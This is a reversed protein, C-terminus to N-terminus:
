DPLLHQLPSWPELAKLVQEGWSRRRLRGDLIALRGCNRRLPAVASPLLSLAEPLLLDRFWDRRKAKLSEVRAAVLPSELSPIPLLGVILQEPLPVQDQHEIWWSWRCCLVGNSDPATTEHIVRSGFEAALESALQRRLQQDNLLVITLGQQGLILRRCQDLLHQGYVETNPMPQRPPAFLSIPEQLSPESLNAVVTAPFAVAQFQTSLFDNKGSGTLLVVPQDKLLGPLVELPELPMLQWSWTLMRHDLEAWSAWNLSDAEIFASWPPPLPAIMRLLDKLALIGNSPIRIHADERTAHSFLRFTLKKHLEILSSEASPHARRLRDWDQDTIVLSMSERLRESLREAEPIILQRSKLYGNKYAHILGTPNLLWLQGSPPPNIAEWCCLTFGKQKLRPLESNFLRRRQSDTLVLVAGSEDLCLPVLLGLWFKDQSGHELQIHTHDM